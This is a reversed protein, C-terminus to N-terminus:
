NQGVVSSRRTPLRQSRTAGQLTEREPVVDGPPRTAPRLGSAAIAPVREPSRNGVRAAEAMVHTSIASAIQEAVLQYELRARVPETAPLPLLRRPQSRQTAVDAPVLAGLASRRGGHASEDIRLRVVARDGPLQRGQRGRAGLLSAAEPDVRRAALMRWRTPFAPHVGFRDVQELTPALENVGDPNVVLDIAFGLALFYNLTMLQQPQKMGALAGSVVSVRKGAFAPSRALEAELTERAYLVLEMAVSGGTVVLIVDDDARSRPPPVGFFGLENVPVDTVRGNVVNRGGPNSKRVYGLFPHPVIEMAHPDGAKALAAADPSDPAPKPQLSRQLESRTPWQPLFVPLALAGLELVAITALGIVGALISTSSLGRAAAM